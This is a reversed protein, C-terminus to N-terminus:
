RPAEADADPTPDADPHYIRYTHTASDGFDDVYGAPDCDLPVVTGDAKLGWGVLPQSWEGGSATKWAVRWGDAPVIAVLDAHPHPEVGDFNRYRDARVLEGTKESVVLPRGEDDFAVLPLYTHHTSNANKYRAALGRPAPIM